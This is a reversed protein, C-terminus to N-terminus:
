RNKNVNRRVRELTKDKSNDSHGGSIDARFAQKETVDHKKLVSKFRNYANKFAKLSKVKMKAHAAM